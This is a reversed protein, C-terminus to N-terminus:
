PVCMSILTGAATSCQFLPWSLPTTHGVTCSSPSDTSYKKEPEVLEFLTIHARLGGGPELLLSLVALGFCELEKWEWMDKRKAARCIIDGEAWRINRPNRSIQLRELSEAFIWDAPVVIAVIIAKKKEPEVLEFLTIHARLCGGPELLLAYLVFSHEVNPM